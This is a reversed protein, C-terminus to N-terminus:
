GYSEVGNTSAAICSTYRVSASAPASTSTTMKTKRPLQRAVSTGAVVTGTVMTPANARM